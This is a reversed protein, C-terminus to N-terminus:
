KKTIMLCSLVYNGVDRSNIIAHYGKKLYLNLNHVLDDVNDDHSLYFSMIFAVKM